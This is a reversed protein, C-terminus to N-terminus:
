AEDTEPLANGAEGKRPEMAPEKLQTALTRGLQLVWQAQASAFRAESEDHEEEFYFAPARKRALDASIARIEALTEESLAQGKEKMVKAFVEGVDHVKPYDVGILSLLGKLTLEVVEQARRM